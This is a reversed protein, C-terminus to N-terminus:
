VVSKRDADGVEGEGRGVGKSGNKGFRFHPVDLQPLPISVLDKGKRGIMESHTIYKRLRERVKGRVIEHFRNTDREIKM